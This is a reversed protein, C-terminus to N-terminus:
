KYILSSLGNWRYIEKAVNQLEESTLSEIKQRTVEFPEAYGFVMLSKGMSLCQAESNDSAISLQGLLQKKANKLERASLRNEILKDLERHVLNLCKDVLGKDCGFYICFVGIDGYCNYSAEVSYVLANKERLAMNLRANTAMGGLINTVVALALRKRVSYFSYACTGLVCHAQHHHKPIEVNFPTRDSLKKLMYEDNTMSLVINGELDNLNATCNYEPKYKKLSKNVIKLVENESFDAAVTIAMKEPIFNTHLYDLLIEPSIKKLTKRSGLIQSSLPHGEFLRAEFDEYISESPSDKYSIIEEYVVETEKKLEKIPFISTFALEFLLDVAKKLDEKLVTAHLVTEEKTTYANLEGGENELLNNISSSKRKETGKFVMHETLHALGNYAPNEDRTGVKTSLACCAVPSNVKKFAFKIIKDSM